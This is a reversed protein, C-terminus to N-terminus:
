FLVKISIVVSDEEPTERIREIAPGDARWRQYMVDRLAQDVEAVGSSPDIEVWVPRGDDGFEIRAVADKPRTMITTYHFYRPPHTTITLGQAPEDSGNLEALAEITSAAHADVEALPAEPGLEPAGGGSQPVSEASEAPEPASEAVEPAETEREARGEIPRTLLGILDRLPMVLEAARRSAADMQQRASVVQALATRVEDRVVTAEPAVLPATPTTSAQPQVVPTPEASAHPSPEPLTIWSLSVPSGDHAGLTIEPPEYAGPDDTGVETDADQKQSRDWLGLAVGAAGHVLLSLVVCVTTTAKGSERM